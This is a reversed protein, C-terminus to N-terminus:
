IGLGLSFRNDIIEAYVRFVGAKSPGRFSSPSAQPLYNTYPGHAEARKRGGGREDSRLQESLPPPPPSGRPRSAVVAGAGGIWRRGVRKEGM